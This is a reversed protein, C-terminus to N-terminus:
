KGFDGVINKRFLLKKQCDLYRDKLLMKQLFFGLQITGSPAAIYHERYYGVKYFRYTAIRHHIILVNTDQSYYKRGYKRRHV